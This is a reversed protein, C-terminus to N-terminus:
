YKKKAKRKIQRKQKRYKANILPIINRIEKKWYVCNESYSVFGKRSELEQILNCISSDFSIGRKTLEYVGEIGYLQLEVNGSKIWEIIQTSDKAEIMINFKERDKTPIPIFGCGKSSYTTNTNFISELNVQTSYFKEFENEFFKFNNSIRFYLIEKNEKQKTDIINNPAKVIRLFSISDADRLLEFQFTYEKTTIPNQSLISTETLSIIETIFGDLVEREKETKWKYKINGKKSKALSKLEKKLERYNTFECFNSFDIQNLQAFTSSYQLVFYCLIIFPKQIGKHNAM